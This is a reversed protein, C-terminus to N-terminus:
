SRVSYESGIKNVISEIEEFESYHAFRVKSKTLERLEAIEKENHGSGTKRIMIADIQTPFNELITKFALPDQQSDDGFLAFRTQPFQTILRMMRNVKYNERSKAKLLDRWHTYPRLFVPGLPLDHFLLFNTITAFLNQESASVYSFPIGSESLKRYAKESEEVFNRKDTQRFLMLWIKSFFKESNSVLITDDIDSIVMYPTKEMDFTIPYTQSIELKRSHRSEFKMSVPDLKDCEFSFIGKSDTESEQEGNDWRAKIIGHYPKAFYTQITSKFTTWWNGEMKQPSQDKKLVTGSVYWGKESKICHLKWIIPNM